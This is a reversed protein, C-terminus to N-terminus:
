SITTTIYKGVHELIDNSINTDVSSDSPSTAVDEATLSGSLSSARCKDCELFSLAGQTTRYVLGGCNKHYGIHIRKSM